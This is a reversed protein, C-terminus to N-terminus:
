SAKDGEEMWYSDRRFAGGVALFAPTAGLEIDRTADANLTWQRVNLSGSYADRPGANAAIASGDATPNGSLYEAAYAPNISNAAGFAFRGSGYGLSLDGSWGGFDGRLGAVASIALTAAARMSPRLRHFAAIHRTTRIM